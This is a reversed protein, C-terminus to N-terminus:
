RGIDDRVVVVPPLLDRSGLASRSESLVVTPVCLQLLNYGPDAYMLGTLRSRVSLVLEVDPVVGLYAPLDEIDFSSILYGARGDIALDLSSRLKGFNLGTALAAELSSRSLEGFFYIM